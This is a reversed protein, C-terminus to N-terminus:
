RPNEKAQARSLGDFISRGMEGVSSADVGGPWWPLEVAPMEIEAHLREIQARAREHAAQARRLVELEDAAPRVGRENARQGVSYLTARKDDAMPAAPVQNIFLAGLPVEHHVRLQEYLECTEQTPLEKPLTV